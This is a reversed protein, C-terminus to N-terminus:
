GVWPPGRPRASDAVPATIHGPQEAPPLQVPAAVQPPQGHEPLLAMGVGMAALCAPCHLGAAPSSGAAGDSEASATALAHDGPVTCVEGFGGAVPAGAWVVASLLPLAVWGLSLAWATWVWLRLSRRLTQM